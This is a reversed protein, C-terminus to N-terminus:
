AFTRAAPRARSQFLCWRVLCARSRVRPGLPSTWLLLEALVSKMMKMMLPFVTDLTRPLLEGCFSFPGYRVM